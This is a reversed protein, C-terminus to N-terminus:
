AKEYVTAAEDTAPSVPAEALGVEVIAPAFVVYGNGIVCIHVEGHYAVPHPLYAIFLKVFGAVAVAYHNPLVEPKGVGVVPRYRIVVVEKHGIGVVEHLADAVM